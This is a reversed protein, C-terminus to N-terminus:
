AQKSTVGAPVPNPGAQPSQRQATPKPEPGSPTKGFRRRVVRTQAHRTKEWVFPQTVLQVLARIAAVSNLVWYLPLLLQAWGLRLRGFRALGLLSTVVSSSYGLIFVTIFMGGWPGDFMPPAPAFGALYLGSLVLFALHAPGSVILGGVYFEFILFRLVGLERLLTLPRRNHVIFTQIWGKTWRTRQRIWGDISVPAEEYTISGFTSCQNGARALRVGLDADETVNFSDWG